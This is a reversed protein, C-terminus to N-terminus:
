DAQERNDELPPNGLWESSRVRGARSSVRFPGQGPREARFRQAAPLGRMGCCTGGVWGRAECPSLVLVWPGSTTGNGGWGACEM